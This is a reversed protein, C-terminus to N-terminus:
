SFTAVREEGIGREIQQVVENINETDLQNWLNFKLWEPIEANKERVLFVRCAHRIAWLVHSLEFKLWLGKKDEKGWFAILVDSEKYIEPLARTLDAGSLRVKFEPVDSSFVNDRGIDEALKADLEKAYGHGTSNYIFAVKYGKIWPNM